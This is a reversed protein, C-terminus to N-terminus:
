FPIPNLCKIRGEIMPNIAYHKLPDPGEGIRTINCERVRSTGDTRIDLGKTRLASGDLDMLESFWGRVVTPLIGAQEGDRLCEATKLVDFGDKGARLYATTCVSYHRSLQLPEDGVHVSDALVREGGARSADFTFHIGSVQLFRGGM